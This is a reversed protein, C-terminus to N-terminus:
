HRGQQHPGPHASYMFDIIAKAGPAHRHGPACVTAQESTKQVQLLADSPRRASTRHAKFFRARWWWVCTM